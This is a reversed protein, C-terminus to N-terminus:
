QWAEEFWPWIERAVANKPKKCLIVRASAPWPPHVVSLRPFWNAPLAVVDRPAQEGIWDQDGWLRNAVAPTWDMFLETNEGGNWVMVSSNFRKFVALRPPHFDPAGDPILAFRAPYTPIDAVNDLLLVDLDFYVMRGTFNWEPDFLKVKNWWAFIGPYPKVLLYEVGAIENPRDTLCVFRHPPLARACMSRLRIVYEATFPVHGKVWVCVVTLTM